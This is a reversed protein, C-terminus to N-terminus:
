VRFVGRDIDKMISGLKHDAIIPAGPVSTSISDERTLEYVEQNLAKIQDTIIQYESPDIKMKQRKRLETIQDKIELVRDMSM